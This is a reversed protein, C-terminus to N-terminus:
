EVRPKDSWVQFVSKLEPCCVKVTVNVLLLMNLAPGPWSVSRSPFSPLENLSLPPSLTAPSSGRIVWPGGPCSYSHSRDEPAVLPLTTVLTNFICFFLQPGMSSSSEWCVQNFAAPQGLFTPPGVTAPKGASSVRCPHGLPALLWVLPQVLLSKLKKPSKTFDSGVSAVFCSETRESGQARWWDKIRGCHIWKTILCMCIRHCLM